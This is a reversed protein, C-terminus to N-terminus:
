IDKVCRFGVGVAAFDLAASINQAFIGGDTGSGYFGGRLMGRVGEHDIWAYDEGFNQESIESTELAVGENDVLTVYGSPPLKRGKYSGDVSVDDTWEWVGGLLDHVATKTVCNNLGTLSSTMVKDPFCSATDLHGLAVKYWEENTPLRKGVKACLQQAQTYTVFRWPMVERESIVECSPIAINAETAVENETVAYLCNKGPSAEYTDMCITHSGFLIPVANKGCVGDAEIVLSSLRTAVGQIEDSAQIGLTSLVIAGVVVLSKRWTQLLLKM